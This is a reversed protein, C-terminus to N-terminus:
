RCQPERKAEKAALTKFLGIQQAYARYRKAQAVYGGNAFFLYRLKRAYGFDGRSAEWWPRVYLAPGGTRTIEIHADDPTEFITMFGEGSHPDAVGYWPMCIGHGGYTVLTRQNISADDAPYMIGENMPVILWNGKGSEFATPYGLPKALPGTGNLTVGFEPQDKSLTVVATLDLNNASDHLDFRIKDAETVAHSLTLGSGLPKQQWDHHTRLDTVVLASTKDDLRVRLFRNSAYPAAAASACLVFLLLFRM